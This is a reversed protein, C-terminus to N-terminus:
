GPLPGEGGQATTAVALVLAAALLPLTFTEDTSREQRAATKRSAACEAM